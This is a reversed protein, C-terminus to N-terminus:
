GLALWDLTRDVHKAATDIYAAPNKSQDKFPKHSYPSLNGTSTYM